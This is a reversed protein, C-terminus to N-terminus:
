AQRWTEGAANLTRAYIIDDDGVTEVMKLNSPTWGLSLTEDDDTRLATTTTGNQSRVSPTYTVSGNQVIVTIPVNSIIVGAKLDGVLTEMTAENGVGGATPHKQDEQSTVTVGTRTLEVTYKLVKVLNVEDWEYVKATGVFKSAIAVSSNGGDGTDDIFLPQAVVQSMASCPMAPSAEYGSSDAGSYWTGKGNILTRTAGNPEYDADSAGTIASIDQPLGPSVDFSGSVGDRTFYNFKTNDFPSSANGSRPWSILDNSLPMILRSDAFRGNSFSAATCGMMKNSGILIYEQNGDTLLEYAEWPELEINEQGLTVNGSGDTMKITNALPGNNIFVKGGESASCLRFAYFFTFDFALGFSLLPMPSLLTTSTYQESFGYFGQTSTIIAGNSLGTFCIPEGLSMFERYLIKSTDGATYATFDAGSAFVEILNGDGLSTGQVKGTNTNGVALVTLAPQGDNALLEQKLGLTSGAAIAGADVLNVIDQVTIKGPVAGREAALQDTLSAAM